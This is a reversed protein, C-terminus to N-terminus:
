AACEGSYQGLTSPAAASEVEQLSGACQDLDQTSDPAAAQQLSAACQDQTSDPAAAEQPSGACFGQAAQAPCENEFSKGACAAAQRALWSPFFSGDAARRTSEPAARPTHPTRPTRPTPPLMPTRDPFTEDHARGASTPQPVKRSCHDGLKMSVSAKTLALTSMGFYGGVTDLFLRAARQHHKDLTAGMEECVARFSSGLNRLRGGTADLRDLRIEEEHLTIRAGGPFSMVEALRLGICQALELLEGQNPTLGDSPLGKNSMTWTVVRDTMNGRLEVGMGSTLMAKRAARLKLAAKMTVVPLLEIALNTPKALPEHTPNSRLLVQDERSPRSPLLPKRLRLQDAHLNSEGGVTSSEERPSPAAPQLSALQAKGDKTVATIWGLDCRARIHGEPLTAIEHVIVVAGPPLDGVRESSLESGARVIASKSTAVRVEAAVLLLIEEGDKSVATIWGADTRARRTGDALNVFEHVTVVSGPPLGAVKTSMLDSGARAIVPKNRIISWEPVWRLGETRMRAEPKSM